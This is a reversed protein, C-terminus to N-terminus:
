CHTKAYQGKWLPDLWKAWEEFAAKDDFTKEILNRFIALGAAMLIIFLQHPFKQLCRTTKFLYKVLAAVFLTPFLLIILHFPKRGEPWKTSTENHAPYDWLFSNHAQTRKDDVM